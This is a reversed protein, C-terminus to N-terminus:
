GVDKRRKPIRVFFTSGHGPESEVWVRGRHADVIGKVISLGLGTSLSTEQEVGPVSRFKEFITEHHELPIGVGTDHVRMEVEDGANEVAVDIRGGAPTFKIANSILNSIVEKMRELDADAMCPAAPTTAKLELQKHEAALAHLHVAEEVMASLDINAFDVVLKGSRVRSLNLLDNILRHLNQASEEVHALFQRQKENLEGVKGELLLTIFGKITTLPTRLDHSVTAVFEDRMRDVQREETVDQMVMLNGLIRGGSTEVRSLAIRLIQVVPFDLEAERYVTKNPSKQMEAVMDDYHLWPVARMADCTLDHERDLRLLRKAFLNAVVVQNDPDCMIVGENLSSLLATLRFKEGEVEYKAQETEKRRQNLDDMLKKIVRTDHAVGVISRTNRVADYMISGSFSMPIRNGGKTVYKCEFQELVGTQLFSDWVRSHILGPDDLIVELPAGVLEFEEYDLLQLLAPNVMRIMGEADVVVLTDVMSGVINDLYNKSVTTKQLNRTMQNFSDALEGIEDRSKM